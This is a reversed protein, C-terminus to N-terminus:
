CEPPLCSKDWVEKTIDETPEEAAKEAWSFLLPGITATRAAYKTALLGRADPYCPQAMTTHSPSTLAGATPKRYSRQTHFVIRTVKM